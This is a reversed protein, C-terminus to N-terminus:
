AAPGSESRAGARSAQRTEQQAAPREAAQDALWVQFSAGGGPRDTVRAAGSHLAAFRAVLSLGVGIGPTPGDTAPVRRFPEFVATHLDAPVGPGADEVALLVGPGERRLWVWVPTGAPTHRAANTLLNEVIREVKPADVAAVIPDIYCEVPRETALGSEDIVRRVLGAVDTEACDATLVGQHLRELDLLDTLLHELKRANAALRSILDATDAEPLRSGSRELTLAIGLITALPARMEHSVATLSSARGEDLARLKAMAEHEHRRAEEVVELARRRETVDVLVGRVAPGSDERGVHGVERFWRTRGDATLVRYESEYSVGAEVAAAARGVAGARDDPHIRYLWFGPETLWREVPFGLLREAAGGVYRFAWGGPAAEWVIADLDEVLERVDKDLM